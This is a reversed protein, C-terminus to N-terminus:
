GRVPEEAGLGDSNGRMKAFILDARRAMLTAEAIVAPNRAHEPTQRLLEAFSRSSRALEVENGIEEFISISHKMHDVARRQHESDAGGAATVEGLSRLAVGLQVKSDTESFLEVARQTCKEAKAFERQSLYARGLGRTAEALGLRDGLEDALDEADKLMAVAKAANGLRNHTEGLNTLVLAVRNRDATQKAVEYAEEFWALARAADRMDLAVMGLNNLTIAVGGLDAIDRRIRLAHEFAELAGKFNGSDHHILGLNNLSLAVSRRDGIKRRMALSRLTYELALPYEGKLWQLKGIDDLTSAIGRDDQAHGFLSLAATLHRNAEDLRGTERYLRGIRAHAVGGKSGLNLRWARTLMEVFALHAQDNRGLSHLVDGAHHLAKMRLDESAHDCEDFLTLGKAYLDAAKTNAYRARAVDGARLFSAAALWTAGAKELHRGLMELNDENAELNERFGLWEAIARHFRRTTGPPTLRELSERELNHKFVYEEDGAFTSDPLRLIYDREVMEALQHRVVVVDDAEGDGWIEPPPASQRRTAVIGGLWFVGGMAAARELLERESSSLAAIRAQVADQVTLPLVVEGLKDVHITWRELASDDLDRAVLLVGTEHYSRVIRELVAPNGSAVAVAEDVLQEVEPVDGCHALLDQVVATADADSLPRLEILMHREAGLRRWGERRALLEPRGICVVLIPGRLNEMLYTLLELSDDHAWQLDDFVLVLPDDAKLADVELFSRIVARRMSAVQHPDGELTKILPSDEFELDLLHGLFYVIDGVRRDDLVAAVQERIQTKAAEVDLVGEAVDFRARLLRAFVEYPPGNEIRPM